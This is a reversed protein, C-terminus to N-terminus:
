AIVLRAATARQGGRASDIWQELEGVSDGDIYMRWFIELNFIMWLRYNHDVRGSVHDGLLRELVEKRFLGAEILRSQAITELM